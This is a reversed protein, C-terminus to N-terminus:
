MGVGQSGIYLRGQTLLFVLLVLNLLTLVVALRQTKM